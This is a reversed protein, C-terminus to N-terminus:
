FNNATKHYVQEPKDRVLDEPNILRKKYLPWHRSCLRAKEYVNIWPDSRKWSAPYYLVPWAGVDWLIAFNRCGRYSCTWRFSKVDMNCVEEFTLKKLDELTMIALSIEPTVIKGLQDKLAELEKCIWPDYVRQAVTGPDEVLWYSGFKFYHLGEHVVHCLQEDGAKIMLQLEHDTM